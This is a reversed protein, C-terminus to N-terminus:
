LYDNFETIRIRIQIIFTQDTHLNLDPDLVYQVICYIHLFM